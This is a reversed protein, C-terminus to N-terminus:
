LKSRNTQCGVFSSTAECGALVPVLPMRSTSCLLPCEQSRKQTGWNTIPPIQLVICVVGATAGDGSQTGISGRPGRGARRRGAPPAPRLETPGWRWRGAGRGSGQHRSSRPAVAREPRRRGCGIGGTAATRGSRRHPWALVPGICGNPWEFGVVKRRLLSPLKTPPPAIGMEAPDLRSTADHIEGM